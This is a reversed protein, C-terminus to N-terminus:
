FDRFGPKEKQWQFHPSFFPLIPHNWTPIPNTQPISLVGLRLATNWLWCCHPSMQLSVSPEGGEGLVEHINIRQEWKSRSSQPILEWKLPKSFAIGLASWPISTPYLHDMCVGMDNVADAWVQCCWPLFVGPVLFQHEPDWLCRGKNGHDPFWGGRWGLVLECSNSANQLTFHVLVESIHLVHGRSALPLSIFYWCM